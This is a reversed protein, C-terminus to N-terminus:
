KTGIIKKLNEILIKNESESKVAIRYYSDDLNRYNSCSRVLIGKKLLEDYLDIKNILKLFIYNAFSDYIKINLKKMEDMLYLRQKKVYQVSNTVYEIEKLSAVGAAQAMTSVNWPPGSKKLSSIFNAKSSMCYGLRVGPIAYIKTFAKLVILNDYKEVLDVVSYKEKNAVFDMFCEDVVVTTNMLKCHLIIKELLIKDSIQGTPNNPNCIFVIDTDINICNTIDQTLKFGNKEDLAFYKIDTEVTKLAQEYESFTPELLIANGPTLSLAIRFIAEAAGNSCFIWSEPIGEYQSLEKVLERSNIDPYRNSYKISRIIAEQVSDPIGFPNINSSFDIIEDENIGFIKSAGYIDAGHGGNNM